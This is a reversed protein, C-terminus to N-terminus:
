ETTVSEIIILEKIGNIIKEGIGSVKDLEGISKFDGNKDRYDIIRQALTPGIGPLQELEEKQATNINLKTHSEGTIITQNDKQEPKVISDPTKNHELRPQLSIMINLMQDIKQIILGIKEELVAIRRELIGMDPSSTILSNRKAWMGRGAKRAEDEVKLLSDMLGINPHSSAVSGYGQKIIEANVFVNDCYVYAMLRAYQDYKRDGFVLRVAKGEVLGKNFEYAKARVPDDPKPPSVGLYICGSTVGDHSVIITMGDVVEIVQAELEAKDACVRATIQIVLAVILITYFKNIRRKPSTLKFIHM